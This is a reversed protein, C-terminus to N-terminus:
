EAKINAERAVRVWKDLEAAIVRAFQASTLPRPEAGEAELRQASEPQRLVSAIETNLKSVIAPPVAAPALLGWWLQIEYGPAGAEGIAPVDPLLPSRKPSTVGLARVRGARIQTLTLPMSGIMMQVQGGMVDTLAPAGGKYPVHLMQIGATRAFLAGAFHNIGGTGASAYTIGNPKTRALDILQKVTTAPLTAATVLVLAGAGIM